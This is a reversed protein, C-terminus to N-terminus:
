RASHIRQLVPTGDPTSAFRPKASAKSGPSGPSKLVSYSFVPSSTASMSGLTRGMPGPMPGQHLRSESAKSTDTEEGAASWASTSCVEFHDDGEDTSGNSHTSRAGSLGSDVRDRKANERLTSEFNDREAYSSSEKLDQAPQDPAIDELRGRRGRTRWAGGHYHGMPPDLPWVSAAVRRTRQTDSMMGDGSRDAADSPCLFHEVRWNYLWSFDDFYIFQLTATPAYCLAQFLEEPDEEFSTKECLKRFAQKSLGGFRDPGAATFAQGMSDFKLSLATFFKFLIESSHMDIDELTAYEDADSDFYEFLHQVNGKFNEKWLVSAFKSLPVKGRDEPDLCRRWARVLNGYKERLIKEFSHLTEKLKQRGRDMVLKNVDQRKTLTYYEQWAFSRTKVPYQDNKHSCKSLTELEEKVGKAVDRHHVEFSFRHDSTTRATWPPDTSLDGRRQRLKKLREQKKKENDPGIKENKVLMREKQERPRYKSHLKNLWVFDEVRLPTSVTGVPDLLQAISNVGEGDQWGLEECRELLEVKSFYDLGRVDLAKFAVYGGSGFTDELFRQFRELEHDAMPEFNRLTVYMLRDSAKPCTAYEFTDTCGLQAWIDRVNYHCGMRTLAANLQQINIKNCGAVDLQQRWARCVTGYQRRLFAKLTHLERRLQRRDVIKQEYERRQISSIDHHHLSLLTPARSSMHGIQRLQSAPPMKSVFRLELTRGLTERYASDYPEFCSM